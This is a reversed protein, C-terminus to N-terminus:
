IIQKCLKNIVEFKQYDFDLNLNFVKCIETFTNSQRSLFYIEGQLKTCKASNLAKQLEEVSYKWELKKQLLRIIILSIFCTLFHGRIHKDTWVYIPRGELDSKTVRFTEEIKSLGKYKEIIQEPTSEWDNTIISYYGDM